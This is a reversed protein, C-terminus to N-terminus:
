QLLPAPNLESEKLRRPCWGMAAPADYLRGLGFRARWHRLGPVIVRAVPFSLEPRTANLTYIEFGLATLRDVCAKLNHHLDRRTVPPYDSLTTPAARSPRLYAGTGPPSNPRNHRSIERYLLIKTVESVASCIATEPDLGAGAGLLMASGDPKSSIAAFAPIQIDTTLDLVHVVRGRDRILEIMSRVRISLLTKWAFAPRRARAYWWLGVADREVLELLGHLVAEEWVNGAACGNTDAGCFQEGYGLYCYATPVYSTKGTTLSQVATWEVKQEPDLPEPVRDAGAWSRNLSRRRRYQAPSFQLLALPDIAEAQIERYSAGVRPEDGHFQLSYREIAEGLCSAQAEAETQGAGSVAM